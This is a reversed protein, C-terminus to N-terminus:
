SNCHMTKTDQEDPEADQVTPMSSCSLYRHSWHVRHRLFAQGEPDFTFTRKGLNVGPRVGGAGRGESGM